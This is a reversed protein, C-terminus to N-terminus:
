SVPGTGLRQRLEENARFYDDPTGIDLFFGDNVFGFFRLSSTYPEFFETEVSFKDALGLNDFAHRNFIYVGANIYGKACFTKEHFASIKGSVEDFSVSGFRDFDRMPKLGLTVDAEKALHFEFQAQIDTLFVSDGNLVVVHEHTTLPLANTIAGGTGLPVDEVAYSIKCSRYSQGFYDMIMESKYGVALTVHNIGQGILWDLLWEIFPKNDVSAMPKPRDNVISQLRTGLGGALIICEQIRGPSSSM